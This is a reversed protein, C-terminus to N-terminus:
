ILTIPRVALTLHTLSLDQSCCLLVIKPSMPVYGFLHYMPVVAYNTTLSGCDIEHHGIWILSDIFCQSLLFRVPLCESCSYLATRSPSSRRPQRPAQGLYSNLSREHLVLRTGSSHILASTDYLDPKVPPPTPPIDGEYLDAFTPFALLKVARHKNAAFALKTTATDASHFLHTVGAKALLQALVEGSVRPSPLFPAFGARM